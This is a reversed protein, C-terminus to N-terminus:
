ILYKIIFESAIKPGNENEFDNKIKILNSKLKSNTNIYSISDLVQGPLLKKITLPRAGLGLKYTIKGWYYQAPFITIPLTPVGARMAAHVAGVGGHTIIIKVKPLLWDHPVSNDIIKTDSSFNIDSIDMKGPDIILREESKILDNLIIKIKNKLRDHSFSGFDFYIPSDDNNFFDILEQSPKYETKKNLFWYGSININKNWDFPKPVLNKSFSCLVPNQESQIKSFYGWFPSQPLDLVERRIRNVSKRTNLWFSQYAFKHTFKNFSGGFNKDSKFYASPFTSTSLNPEFIISFYPIKLKEGLHNGVFFLSTYVIADSNKCIELSIKLWGKAYNELQQSFNIKVKKANDKNPNDDWATAPNGPLEFYKVNNSVVLEEYETHTAVFVDTGRNQLELALAVCPQVDGRTGIAIIAIEM